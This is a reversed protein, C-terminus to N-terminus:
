VFLENKIFACVKEDYFNAYFDLLFNTDKDAMITEIAKKDLGFIKINPQKLLIGCNYECSNWGTIPGVGISRSNKPSLRYNGIKNAFILYTSYLYFEAVHDGSKIFFDLFTTGEKKSIYKIMELADSKSLLHPSVSILKNGANEEYNFPCKINYYDLCSYYHKIMNGPSCTFLRPKENEDFFDGRVINKLFHTKTDLVLYYESKVLNAALFKHIKHENCSTKYDKKKLFNIGNFKKKMSEPYCEILEKFNYRTVDNHILYINNVLTEDVYKFSLAQLKLLNIEIKDDFFITVFDM